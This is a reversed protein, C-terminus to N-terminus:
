PNGASRGAPKRSRTARAVKPAHGGGGEARERAARVAARVRRESPAADKGGHALWDTLAGFVLRLKGLTSVSLAAREGRAIKSAHGRGLGAVDDVTQLDLGSLGVLHSLREALTEMVYPHVDASMLVDLASTSAAGCRSVIRGHIRRGEREIRLRRVCGCEAARARKSRSLRSRPARSPLPANRDRGQRDGVENRRFNM